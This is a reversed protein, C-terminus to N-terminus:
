VVSKRDVFGKFFLVLLGIAIILIVHLILIVFAMSVSKFLGSGEKKFNENM